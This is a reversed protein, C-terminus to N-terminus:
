LWRERMVTFAPSQRSRPWTIPCTPLVPNTASGWKCKSTRFSPTNTSGAGNSSGMGPRQVHHRTPRTTLCRCPRSCPNISVWPCSCPIPLPAGSAHRPASSHRKRQVRPTAAGRKRANFTIGHRPFSGISAMTGEGTPAPEALRVVVTPPAPSPVPSSRPAPSGIRSWIRPLRGSSQCAPDATCLQFPTAPSSAYPARSLLDLRLPEAILRSDCTGQFRPSPWLETRM